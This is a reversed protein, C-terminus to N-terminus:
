IILCKAINILFNWGEYELHDLVNIDLWYRDSCEPDEGSMNCLM